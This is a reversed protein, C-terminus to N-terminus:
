QLTPGEEEPQAPRAFSLSASSWYPEVRDNAEVIGVVTFPVDLTYFLRPVCPFRARAQAEAPDPSPPERNCDDLNQAGSLRDGVRVQFLSAAEASIVVEIRTPDNTPEPLRGDVVRVRGEFDSTTQISVLPRFQGAPVPQGVPTLTMRSLIASRAESATLWGINESLLVAMRRAEAPAEPEGLPLGFRNLGNRTASGIEQELADRLGLDNMVRTYIPSAAMLTAAVLIGFSLVALLRWSALLRLWVLTWIGGPIKM